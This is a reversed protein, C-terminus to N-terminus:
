YATAFDCHGGKVKGSRIMGSPAVLAICRQDLDQTLRYTLLVSETLTGRPSFITQSVGSDCSFDVLSDLESTVIEPPEATGDLAKSCQQLGATNHVLQDLQLARYGLGACQALVPESPASQISLIKQDNDVSVECPTDNQIAIKKADEFWAVSERTLAKLRENSLNRGLSVVSLGAFIGFIVMAILLETLTLGQDRVFGQPRLLLTM